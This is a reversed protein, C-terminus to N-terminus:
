TAPAATCATLTPLVASCGATSPAATCASLTPLVVSCGATSPAATCATLTPLVVSCGATSPAATCASLTPLVVSCGATAPAATCATLTPLVASCGATSPAATCASLTPLVVSCGATSPAATCASLTPLVVSCGATAPAATCAVLTPLVASCGATSPAATCAALTPLVVSCGPLSPTATCAQLTPLIASCGALAPDAVCDSVVPQVIAGQITIRGGASTVTAGGVPDVTGGSSALTVNGSGATINSRVLIGSASSLEIPGSGAVSIGSEAGVTTVQLLGGNRFQFGDPGAAFGAIEGIFNLETGLKVSGTDARASVRNVSLAGPATQVIDGTATQMALLSANMGSIRADLSIGTGAVLNLVGGFGLTMSIPAKINVAGDARLTLSSNTGWTLPSVVNIDGAGTGAANATSVTVTSFNLLNQLTDVTLLSDRVPNIAGFGSDGGVATDTGVMGADTAASQDVAIYINTPDLLLSGTRGNPARTDVKGRMDLTRGSVEVWGGDGSQSGGRASISGAARTAQDSWAVVKGGNGTAIADARISSESSLVVQQANRVTPNAGHADGGVLVTGGGSQGSADVRADGVLGVREGLLSVTGGTGAGTASTVSGAELLLDGGARLVVRGNAGVMASDASVSGRQRVLGGYIGIRGGEALVEGLNLAQDGPASVVVHLNPNHSDVLQVSRGAALVVEGGPAHIVGSNDVSPAVLYVNGGDPTTIRGQNAVRGATSGASFNMRGALFDQNSLALSSAVLGGVDVRSGAGFLVGNPNVLVVRGNSQLTGLIVSPDQGVVRNLVTSAANQQLFRTTQGAGISFGQWQLIAGPTNTISYVSGARQFSAQGSVVTPSTPLVQAPAGVAMLSALVTALFRTSARIRSTM